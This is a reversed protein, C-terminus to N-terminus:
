WGLDLLVLFGGLDAFGNESYEFFRRYGSLNLVCFDFVQRSDTDIQLIVALSKSM